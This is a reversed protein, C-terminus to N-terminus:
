LDLKKLLELGFDWKGYGASINIHGADPIIVLKSGWSKAFLEARDVTVYKDTTSIVTITPFPLASLPMPSFGTPEEPFNEGEPDAPAVLM